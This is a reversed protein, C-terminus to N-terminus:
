YVPSLSSNDPSNELKWGSQRHDASDTKSGFALMLTINNNSIMCSSPNVRLLTLDHVRRGSCLLLVSVACKSVQYLSNTESDLQSIHELVLEVDWIPPKLSKPKALAISKLMNKVSRHNSLPDAAEPDCLTSVVAKHFLITNYSLGEKQHLDALFRALDFGNPKHKSVKSRYAWSKWRMWAPKYSKLTSAHWNAM